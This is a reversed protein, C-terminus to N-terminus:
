KRDLNLLDCEEIAYFQLLRTFKRMPEADFKLLKPLKTKFVLVIKVFVPIQWFFINSNKM